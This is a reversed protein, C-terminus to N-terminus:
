IIIKIICDKGGRQFSEVIEIEVPKGFFISWMAKEHGRTCECLMDANKSIGDAMPCSCKEKGLPIVIGDDTEAITMPMIGNLFSVYDTRTKCNSAAAKMQRFQEEMNKRAACGKGCCEIMHIATPNQVEKAAGLMDDIWEAYNSM